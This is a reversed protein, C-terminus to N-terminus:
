AKGGGRRENRRGRRGKRRKTGGGRGGSDQAQMILSGCPAFSGSGGTITAHLSELREIEVLNNFRKMIAALRRQMEEKDDEQNWVWVRSRVVAVVLAVL